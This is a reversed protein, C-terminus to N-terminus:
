SPHYITVEGQQFAPTLERLYSSGGGLAREAPGAFVYRIHYQERLKQWEEGSLEGRFFAEAQAQKAEADITEFPHGVFVRVGARGPLLMGTRPTALVVEDQAHTLLWQMATAEDQSLYLRAFLGSQGDRNLVGLILVALLFLSGLASFSVTLIAVLRAKGVTLRPLLWRNLGIAALMALPLGLGTLFRRQLAFPLYILFLTGVSWAPLALGRWDRKHVVIVGGPIALLGVLGFGLILNLVSPAPTVNQAAWASLAPNTTYVWYDYLLVPGSFLAVSAAATLGPLPWSQDRWKRLLLYLALTVYVPAVALPQILALALAALGPVLRRWIGPLPWVVEMVIILILAMALPFHPNSLLSFFAFAEPVWLDIPFVGLALGMWGLGASTGILGFALRRERRDGTLRALFAYVTVLLALGALVRAAHYVLILPLGMLRAIHGLGLYFLFIYAGEHPEPTYTLHFQWAGAWGQRMKALYSNGDLPNVLIGGFQYGAPTAVWAVLYPLCSVALIVAAWTLAWRWELLPIVDVGFVRPDKSDRQWNLLHPLRSKAM